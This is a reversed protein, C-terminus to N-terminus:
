NKVHKRQSSWSSDTLWLCWLMKLSRGFIPRSNPRQLWTYEFQHIRWESSLDAGRDPFVGEALAFVRGPDFVPFGDFVLAKIQSKLAHDTANACPVPALVEQLERPQSRM